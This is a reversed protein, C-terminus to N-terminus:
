IYMICINMILVFLIKIMTNSYQHFVHVLIVGPPLNVKNIIDIQM